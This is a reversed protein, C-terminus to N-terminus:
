NRENPQAPASAPVDPNPLSLSRQLTAVRFTVPDSERVCREFVAAFSPRPAARRLGLRAAIRRLLSRM